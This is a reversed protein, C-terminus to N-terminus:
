GGNRWQTFLEQIKDAVRDVVKDLKANIDRLWRDHSEMTAEVAALREGREMFNEELNVIRTGLENRTDHAATHAYARVDKVNQDMAVELAALQNVTALGALKEALKAFKEEDPLKALDEKLQAVTAGYVKLDEHIPPNRGWVKKGDAISGIVNRVVIAIAGLAVCGTILWLGAATIAGKDTVLQALTCDFIAFRFDSIM